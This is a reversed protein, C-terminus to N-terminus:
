RGDPAWFPIGSCTESPAILTAAGSTSDVRLIGSRGKLDSGRVVFTRGDPSLSGMGGYSLAPHVERVTESTDASVIAVVPRTVNIPAPIDRWSEYLLLRGDSSWQAMGTVGNFQKIPSVPRSSLQGSTQDFEAM